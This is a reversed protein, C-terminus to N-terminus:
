WGSYPIMNCEIKPKIPDIHDIEEKIESKESSRLNILLYGIIYCFEVIAYYINPDGYVRVIQFHLITVVLIVPTRIFVYDAFVFALM